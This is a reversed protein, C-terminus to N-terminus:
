RGRVIQTTSGKDNEIYAVCYEEGKGVVFEEPGRETTVAVHDNRGQPTVDIMSGSVLKTGGSPRQLKLTFM